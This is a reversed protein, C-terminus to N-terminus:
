TPCHLTRAGHPTTIAHTFNSLYSDGVLIRLNKSDTYGVSSDWGAYIQMSLAQWTSWVATEFLLQFIIDHTLVVPAYLYLHLNNPNLLGWGLELGCGHPLHLLNQVYISALNPMYWVTTALVM